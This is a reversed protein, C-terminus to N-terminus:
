LNYSKLFSVGYTLPPIQLHAAISQGVDAFTDRRGIFKSPIEPGYALVPVHERTHDSGPFTPDCGHDATIIILDGPQLIKSLENLRADFEILAKGYGDTDRRHGFSSDFDVFNTFILSGPPATVFAKLTADFLQMNNDAMITQTMGIHAFIDATKGIAIVERGVEKLIQLLTPSPPFVSYDRRNATRKFAGPEGVFPRAIVRGVNYEDALQRAIKCLNYLKELTFYKEHAAIQIVSDASTYIIPKGSKIHEDGFEAIIETGSAHKQGLVGTLNGKDILNNILEAPFCPEIQPFYGWKTFVPVGTLEWHGSPTDKGLSQEVAYGYHGIPDKFDALDVYHVGSSAILAHYIGLSALNPIQLQKSYKTQWTSVIAGLTNAGADGYDAADLSAGIGLSDLLLVCARGIM